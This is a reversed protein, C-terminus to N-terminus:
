RVHPTTGMRKLAQRLYAVKTISWQGVQNIIVLGIIAVTVMMAPSYSKHYAYILYAVLVIVLLWDISQIVFIMMKTKSADM